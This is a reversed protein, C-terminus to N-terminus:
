CCWRWSRYSTGREVVMVVVIMEVVERDKGLVDDGRVVVVEVM